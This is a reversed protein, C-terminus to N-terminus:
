TLVFGRSVEVGVPQVGFLVFDDAFLQVNQGHLNHVSLRVM